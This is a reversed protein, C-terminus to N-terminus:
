SGEHHAHWTMDSSSLGTVFNVLEYRVLKAYQGVKLVQLAGSVFIHLIQRISSGVFRCVSPSVCAELDSYYLCKHFNLHILTNCYNRQLLIGLLMAVQHM